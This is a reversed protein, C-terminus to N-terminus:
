TTVERLVSISSIDALKYVQGGPAIAEADYVGKSWDLAAAQQATMTLVFQSLAVDVIVLSDPNEAPNSHWSWLLTGGPKDRVQGRAQWGTLDMPQRLVLLGDGSFQRWCHANLENLEITDADVATVFVYEDEPTNLEEPQRVCTVRVPWGDPIGHGPVRLRVPAKSPMAVIPLYLLRDDAWMFGFEFTEGRTITIPVIEAM